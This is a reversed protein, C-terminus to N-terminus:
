IIPFNSGMKMVGKDCLFMKLWTSLSKLYIRCPGKFLEREAVSYSQTCDIAFETTYGGLINYLWFDVVRSIKKRVTNVQQILEPAWNSPVVIHFTKNKEALRQIWKTLINPFDVFFIEHLDTFVYRQLWQELNIM